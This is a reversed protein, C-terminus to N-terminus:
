YERVGLHLRYIILICLISESRGPLTPQAHHLILSALDDLFIPTLWRKIDLTMIFHHTFWMRYINRLLKLFWATKWRSTNIRESSTKLKPFKQFCQIENTTGALVASNDAKSNHLFLPASTVLVYNFQICFINFLTVWWSWYDKPQVTKVLRLLIYDFNTKMNNSPTSTVAPQFFCKM